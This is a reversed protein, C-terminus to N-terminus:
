NAFGHVHLAEPNGLGDPHSMAAAHALYHGFPHGFARGADVQSLKIVVTKMGVGRAAGVEPRAARLLIALDVVDNVRELLHLIGAAQAATGKM